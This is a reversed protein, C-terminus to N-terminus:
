VTSIAPCLKNIESFAPHPLMMHNAIPHSLIVYSQNTQSIIPEWMQKNVEEFRMYVFWWGHSLNKYYDIEVTEITTAVFTLIYGFILTFTFHSLDSYCVSVLKLSSNSLLDSVTHTLYVMVTHTLCLWTVLPSHTRIDWIFLWTHWIFDHTDSLFDNHTPYFTMTHTPYFTMTHKDPM